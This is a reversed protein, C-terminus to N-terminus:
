LVLEVQSEQLRGRAPGKCGSFRGVCQRSAEIGGRRGHQCAEKALWIFPARGTSRMGAQSEAAAARETVVRGQGSGGMGCM